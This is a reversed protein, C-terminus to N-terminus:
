PRHIVQVVWSLEVVRFRNLSTGGTSTLNGFHTLQKSCPLEHSQVAALCAPQRISTYPIRDCVGPSVTAWWFWTHTAKPKRSRRHFKAHVTVLLRKSEARPLLEDVSCAWLDSRCLLVLIDQLCVPSISYWTEAGLEAILWCSCQVVTHVNMTLTQEPNVFVRNFTQFM